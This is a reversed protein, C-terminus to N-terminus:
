DAVFLVSISIWRWLQRLSLVGSCRGQALTGSHMSLKVAHGAKAESDSVKQQGGDPDGSLTGGGGIEEVATQNAIGSGCSYERTALCDTAFLMAVAVICM